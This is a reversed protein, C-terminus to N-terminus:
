EEPQGNNEEESTIHEYVRAFDRWNFEIVQFKDDGLDVELSLTGYSVGAQVISKVKIPDTM